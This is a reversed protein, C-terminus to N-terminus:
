ILTLENNDYSGAANGWRNPFVTRVTGLPGLPAILEDPPPSKLTLVLAVIM